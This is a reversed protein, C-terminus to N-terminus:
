NVAEDARKYRYRRIARPAVAPTVEIRNEYIAPASLPAFYWGRLKEDALATELSREAIAATPHFAIKM